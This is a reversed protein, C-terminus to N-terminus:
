ARFAPTATLGLPMPAITAIGIIPTSVVRISLRQSIADPNEIKAIQLIQNPSTFRAIECHDNRHAIIRLPNPEPITKTGKDVVANPVRRFSCIPLALPKYLRNRLTPPLM